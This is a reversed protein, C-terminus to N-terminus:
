PKRAVILWWVGRGPQILFEDERRVVEFGRTRLEDVVDSPGLESHETKMPDVIVLRGRSVLSQYVHNLIVGPNDLEHYTNVILVADVADNPLHPNEPEGLVTRVNHQRGLLTRLWLFQLPLKRIDVAYVAGGSDVVPSLKLAFYGSGCGLDAVTGGQKLDLAHIIDSPRQWLDREAEVVTLQQLTRVGQYAVIALGLGLFVILLVLAPRLFQLLGAPAPKNGASKRDM